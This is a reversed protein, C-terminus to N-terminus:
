SCVGYRKLMQVSPQPYSASYHCYGNMWCQFHDNTWVHDVPSMDFEAISATFYKMFCAWDTKTNACNKIGYHKDLLMQLTESQLRRANKRNINTIKSSKLAAKEAAKQESEKIEERKKLIRDIEEDVEEMEEEEEDEEDDDDDDSDEYLAPMKEDDSDDIEVRPEGHVDNKINLRNQPTDGESMFKFFTM